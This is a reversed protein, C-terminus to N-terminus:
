NKKSGYRIGLIVDSKHGSMGPTPTMGAKACIRKMRRIGRQRKPYIYLGGVDINCRFNAKRLKKQIKLIDPYSHGSIHWTRENAKEVIEIEIARKDM